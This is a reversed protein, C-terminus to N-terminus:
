SAGHGDTASPRGYAAPPDAPRTIGQSLAAISAANLTAADAATQAATALEAAQVAADITRPTTM